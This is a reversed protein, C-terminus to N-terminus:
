EIKGVFTDKVKQIYPKIIEYKDAPLMKKYGWDFIRWYTKSYDEMDYYTVRIDEEEAMCELNYLYIAYIVDQRKSTTNSKKSIFYCIIFVLVLVITLIIWWEM